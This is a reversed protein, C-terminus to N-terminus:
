VSSRGRVLAVLGTHKALGFAFVILGVRTAYGVADYIGWLTESRQEFGHLDYLQYFSIASSVLSTCMLFSGVVMATTGNSAPQKRALLVSAAAMSIVGVIHAVGLAINISHPIDM